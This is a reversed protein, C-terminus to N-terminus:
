QFDTQRGIAHRSYYNQLSEKIYQIYVRYKTKTRIKEVGYRSKEETKLILKQTAVKQM